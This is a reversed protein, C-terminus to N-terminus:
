AEVAAALLGQGAPEELAAKTYLVMTVPRGSRLLEALVRPGEVLFEGRARREKRRHLARVHKSQSQSPM